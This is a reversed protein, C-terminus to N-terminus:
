NSKDVITFEKRCESKSECELMKSQFNRIEQMESPLVALMDSVQKKMALNFLKVILYTFYLFLKTM